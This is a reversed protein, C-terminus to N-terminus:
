LYEAFLLRWFESLWIGIGSVNKCAWVKGLQQTPWSFHVLLAYLFDSAHAYINLDIFVKAHVIVQCEYCRIQTLLYNKNKNNNNHTLSNCLHVWWVWKHTKTTTTTHSHIATTVGDYGSTHKQQQQQTDTFQLPSGMVGVQTNKNNNNYQNYSLSNCHHGWWVWRHGVEGANEHWVPRRDGVGPNWTSFFTNQDVVTVQFPVM